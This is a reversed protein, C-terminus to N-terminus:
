VDTDPSVLHAATDLGDLMDVLKNLVALGDILDYEAVEAHRLQIARLSGYFYVLNAFASTYVAGEDGADCGVLFCRELLQRQVCTHSAEVCLWHRM